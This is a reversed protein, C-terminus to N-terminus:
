AFGHLHGASHGVPVGFARRLARALDRIERGSNPTTTIYGFTKSEPHLDVPGFSGIGVAQAPSERRPPFSSQKRAM